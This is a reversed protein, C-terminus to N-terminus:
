SQSQNRSNKQAYPANTVGSNISLTGRYKNLLKIMANTNLNDYLKGQIVVDFLRNESYTKFILADTKQTILLAEQKWSPMDIKETAATSDHQWSCNIAVAIGHSRLWIYKNQEFSNSTILTELLGKHLDTEILLGPNIFDSLIDQQEIICLLDKKQNFAILCTRILSDIWDGEAKSKQAPIIQKFAIYNRQLVEQHLLIFIMLAAPSFILAATHVTTLQAYSSTIILLCYGYFTLVLNKKSDHALWASFYYLAGSFFLIEIADSWGFIYWSALTM